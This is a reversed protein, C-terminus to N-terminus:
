RRPLWRWPGPGGARAWRSQTPHDPTPLDLEMREFLSGVLGETRRPPQHFVTRLIM